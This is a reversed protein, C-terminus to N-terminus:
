SDTVSYQHIDSYIHKCLSIFAGQKASDVSGAPRGINKKELDLTQHFCIQCSHHHIAEAAVLDGVNQVNLFVAEGWSDGREMAASAVSSLLEKLLQMMCQIEREVYEETYATIKIDFASM